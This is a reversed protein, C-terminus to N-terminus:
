SEPNYPVVSPLEATAERVAAQLDSTRNPDGTQVPAVVRAIEQSADAPASLIRQIADVRGADDDSFYDRSHCRMLGLVSNMAISRIRNRYADSQRRIDLLKDQENLAEIARLASPRETTAQETM